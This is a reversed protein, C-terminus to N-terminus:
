GLSMEAKREKSLRRMFSSRKIMKVADNYGELFIEDALGMDFTTYKVLAKPEFLFDVRKKRDRANERATLVLTRELVQKMSTVNKEKKIPNVEVGIIVDCAESELPEIPFNNMIGGDSYVDDGIQIPTFIVPIASSAIIVDVLQGSSVYEEKGTNLNVVCIHLRRKLDEFNEIEGLYKRYLGRYSKSRILGAFGIGPRLNRIYGSAKMTELMEDPSMGACYFAGAIAGASSGSVVDPVIGFEELAKMVGIHAIGRAGGGSLVLGIKQRMGFSILYIEVM